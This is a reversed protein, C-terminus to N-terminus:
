GRAESPGAGTRCPKRSCGEGHEWCEPHYHAECKACSVPALEVPEACLVCRPPMGTREPQASSACAFPLILAGGLPALLFSLAVMIAEGSYLFIGVYLCLFFGGMPVAHWYGQGIAQALGPLYRVLLVLYLAAFLVAAGIGLWVQQLPSLDTWWLHAAITTLWGPLFGALVLTCVRNITVALRRAQRPLVWGKFDIVASRAGLMALYFPVFFFYIFFSPYIAPSPPMPDDLLHALLSLVSRFHDFLFDANM